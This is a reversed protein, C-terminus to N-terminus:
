AHPPTRDPAADIVLAAVAAEDRRRVHRILAIATRFAEAPHDQM